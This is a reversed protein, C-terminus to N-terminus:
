SMEYFVNLAQGDGCVDIVMIRVVLGRNLNDRTVNRCM